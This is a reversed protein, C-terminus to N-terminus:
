ISKWEFYAEGLSSEYINRVSSCMTEADLGVLQVGAEVDKRNRGATAIATKAWINADGLPLFSINDSCQVTKPVNESVVCGLGSCQAEVAVLGFGESLSPLIFVDFAQYLRNVDRRSGLFKVANSINRDNTANKIEKELVGNGVMVLVCKVSNYMAEFVDLLFKHNKLRSFRAVNGVCIVDDGIGLERRVEHRISNNYRFKDTSIGNGLVKAAIRNRRSFALRAAEESVAIHVTAWRPIGISLLKNRIRKLLSDAGVASHAHIIRSPVKMNKAERLYIFASNLLHGHVVAYCNKKLLLSFEKGFDLGLRQKVNPLKHVICDFGNLYQEIHDDCVDYVAIEHRYSHLGEILSVVMSAVGSSPVLSDLVHLVKKKDAVSKV